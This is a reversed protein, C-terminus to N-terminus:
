LRKRAKAILESQEKLLIPSSEAIELYPKAAEKKGAAAMLLFYFVANDPKQLEEEPLSGVLKVAEVTQGQQHLSFAYTLAFAPNKSDRRYNDKAVMRMAEVDRGSLLALAAYSNANTPDSPNLKLLREAVFFARQTDKKSRHIAYLNHLAEQRHLDGAAILEWIEQAEMDWGWSTALRALALLYAANERAAERALRWSNGAEIGESNEKGVRARFALRYFENTQWNVGDTHADLAKWDKTLILAEGVAVPAPQQQLEIPAVAKTWELVETALENRNMWFLVDAIRQSDGVAAQQLKTLFPQFEGPRQQHVIDLLTLQDRFAAEPASALETALQYAKENDGTKRSVELLARTAELRTGPAQRLTELTASSASLQDRDGSSVRARALKLQLSSNDPDLKAAEALLREAKHGNGEATALDAALELFAVSSAFNTTSLAEQAVGLEGFQLASRALALVNTLQGPQLLNVRKWWYIAEASGAQDCAQALVQCTEISSDDIRAAIRAQDVARAVDGRQLLEKAEHTAKRQGLRVSYKYAQHGALGLVALGILGATIGQRIRKRRLARRSRHSRRSHGSHRKSSDQM